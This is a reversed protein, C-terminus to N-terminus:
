IRVPGADPDAIHMQTQPDQVSRLAPQADKIFIAHSDTLQPDQLCACVFSRLRLCIKRCGRVIRLLCLVFVNM